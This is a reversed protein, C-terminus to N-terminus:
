REIHWCKSKRNMIGKNKKQKYRPIECISSRTLGCGNLGARGHAPQNLGSSSSFRSLVSM